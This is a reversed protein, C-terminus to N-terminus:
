LLKIEIPSIYYTYFSLQVGSYSEGGGGWWVPQSCAHKCDNDENVSALRRRPPTTTAALQTRVRRRGDDMTTRKSFSSYYSRLSFLECALLLDAPRDTTAPGSYDHRHTFGSRRRRAKLSRTLSHTLPGGLM